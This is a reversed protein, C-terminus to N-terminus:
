VASFLDACGRGLMDTREHLLQHAYNVAQKLDNQVTEDLRQRIGSEASGVGAGTAVGASPRGELELELELM